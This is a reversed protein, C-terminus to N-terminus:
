LIDFDGISGRSKKSDYYKTKLLFKKFDYGDFSGDDFIDQMYKAKKALKEMEEKKKLEEVLRLSPKSTISILTTYCDTDLRHKISKIVYETEGILIPDSKSPPTIPNESTLETTVQDSLVDQLKLDRIVDEGLETPYSIEFKLKYKM